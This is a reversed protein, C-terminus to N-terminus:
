MLLSVVAVGIEKYIFSTEKGIYFQVWLDSYYM